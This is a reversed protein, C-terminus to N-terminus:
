YFPFWYYLLLNLDFQINVHFDKTDEVMCVYSKLLLDHFLCSYKKLTYLDAQALGTFPPHVAAEYTLLM